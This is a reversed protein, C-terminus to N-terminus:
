YTLKQTPRYLSCTYPMKKVLATLESLYNEVSQGERQRHTRLKHRMMIASCRKQVFKSDLLKLADDFKAEEIIHFAKVGWLLDTIYEAPGFTEQFAEYFYEKIKNFINSPRISSEM